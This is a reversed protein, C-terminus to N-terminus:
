SFVSSADAGRRSGSVPMPVIAPTTLDLAPIGSPDTMTVAVLVSPFPMRDVTVPLSPMYEKASRGAPIYEIVASEPTLTSGLAAITSTVPPCAVLNSRPAGGSKPATGWTMAGGAVIDDMVGAAVAGAAALLRAVTALTGTTLGLGAGTGAAVLGEATTVPLAMAAASAPGAGAVDEAAPEPLVKQFRQSFPFVEDMWEISLWSRAWAPALAERWPEALAGLPEAGTAERPAGGIARSLGAGM